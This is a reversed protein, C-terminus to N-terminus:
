SAKEHLPMKLSRGILFHAPTLAEVDDPDDSLACLPRSNLCAEVSALLTTIGQLSYKQPGMVRKLHHKMAKVAAEWIGGEHPASPTIFHWETGSLHVLHQIPEAKWMKFAKQLETDSGIFNTGNDSYLKEPHGRKCVFRQYAALFDDASMGETPELHVARTVLCVFVAIWGKLEPLLRNRTNTRVKDTIRMSYPGAMDVGVHQFPPAPRIRVEPLESMVQGVTRQAQKVCEVCTGIYKRAEFRMKPIWFSKRLFQMMIQVGGHLTVKHAYRLLLYALRSKPPIIYQHRKEYAINAKNIRGGVRLISNEDLKPRLAAIESKSPLNDKDKICKIEKKFAKQQEFRVWHEIAEKRETATIYVSGPLPEKKIKKRIRFIYATM